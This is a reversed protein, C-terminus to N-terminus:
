TAVQENGAPPPLDLGFLAAANATTHEALTTLEINREAALREAVHAVFAPENRRGRVPMPALWPADTEVLLRNAPVERVVDRLASNAKYTAIGGIGIHLDMALLRDLDHATGTYCHVVGRLPTGTYAELEAILREFADRCHLIVPLSLALSARVHRHLSRVQQEMPIRDHYDDLGTEGVAAFRGSSLLEEVRHWADDDTVAAETPHLGATAHAWGAHRESLELAELASDDDVAVVVCAALGAARAREVVADRDAAFAHATLHCHTDVLRTQTTVPAM